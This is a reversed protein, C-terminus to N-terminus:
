FNVRGIPWQLNQADGGIGIKGVYLKVFKGKIGPTSLGTRLKQEEEPNDFVVTYQDATRAGSRARSRAEAMWDDPPAEFERFNADKTIQNHQGPRQFQDLKHREIFESWVLLDDRLDAEELPM